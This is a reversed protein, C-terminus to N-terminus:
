RNRLPSFRLTINRVLFVHNAEGIMGGVVLIRFLAKRLASVIGVIFRDIGVRVSLFRARNTVHLVSRLFCRERDMMGVTMGVFVRSVAVSVRAVVM